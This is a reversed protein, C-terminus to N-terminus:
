EECDNCTYLYKESLFAECRKLQKGCMGCAVIGNDGDVEEGLPCRSGEFPCTAEYQCQGTLLELETFETRKCEKILSHRIEKGKKMEVLAWDKGDIGNSWHYENGTELELAFALGTFYHGMNQRITEASYYGDANKEADRIYGITEKMKDIVADKQSKKM